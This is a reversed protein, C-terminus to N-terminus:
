GTSSEFRIGSGIVARARRVSTITARDIWVDPLLPGQIHAWQSDINLQVLPISVNSGGVRAGGRITMSPQAQFAPPAPHQKPPQRWRYGQARLLLETVIFAAGLVLACTIVIAYAAIM